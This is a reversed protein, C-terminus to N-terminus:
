RDEGLTLLAELEAVTRGLDVLLLPFAAGAGRVLLTLGGPAAEFVAL